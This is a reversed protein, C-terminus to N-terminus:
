EGRDARLDAKGIEKIKPWNNVYLDFEGSTGCSPSIGQQNPPSAGCHTGSVYDRAHEKDRGHFNIRLNKAVLSLGIIGMRLRPLPYLAGLSVIM